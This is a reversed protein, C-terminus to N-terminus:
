TCGSSGRTTPPAPRRRGPHRSAPRPSRTGARPSAAPDPPPARRTRARRRRAPPDAPPGRRGASSLRGEGRGRGLGTGSPVRDGSPEDNSSAAAGVPVEIHPTEEPARRAVPAAALDGPACCSRDYGGPLLLSQPPEARATEGTTRRPGARLLSKLHLGEG